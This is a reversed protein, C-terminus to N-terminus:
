RRPWFKNQNSAVECKQFEKWKPDEVWTLDHEVM